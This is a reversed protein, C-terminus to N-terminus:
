SRPRPRPRGPRGASPASSAPRSLFRRLRAGLRGEDKTECEWVVLARWGLRKLAKLSEGDRARNRAIKGTWYDRNTAPVRAGRRCDHGHWFCGHVFVCASHRAFVLDPSGPLGSGGLRFRFGLGHALRRVLREPRTDRSKVARMIASREASPASFPVTM